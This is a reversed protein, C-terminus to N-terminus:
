SLNGSFAHDGYGGIGCLLKGGAFLLFVMENLM